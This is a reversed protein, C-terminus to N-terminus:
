PDRGGAQQKQEVEEIVRLILAVVQLALVLVISALFAFSYLVILGLDSRTVPDEGHLQWSLGLLLVVPAVWSGWVIRRNVARRESSATAKTSPSDQPPRVPIRSLWWALVVTAIAVIANVVIALAEITM